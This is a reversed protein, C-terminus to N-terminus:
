LRCVRAALVVGCAGLSTVMVNVDGIQLPRPVQVAAAVVQGLSAALLGLLAYWALRSVDRGVLMFCAAGNIVGLLSALVLWPPLLALLAPLWPVSGLSHAYQRPTLAARTREPRKPGSGRCIGSSEVYQSITL